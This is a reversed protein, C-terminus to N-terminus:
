FPKDTEKQPDNLQKELASIRAEDQIQRLLLDQLHQGAPVNWETKAEHQARFDEGLTMLFSIVAMALFKGLWGAMLENLKDKM